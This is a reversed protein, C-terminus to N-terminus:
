GGSDIRVNERGKQLQVAQGDKATSQHMGEIEAQAIVM